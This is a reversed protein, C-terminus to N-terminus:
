LILLRNIEWGKEEYIRMRELSYSYFHKHVRKSSILMDISDILIMTEKEKTKRRGRGIKQLTDIESKRASALVVGNVNPIDTGIGFVQTAIVLNIKGNNLDNKIKENLGKQNDSHALTPSLGLKHAIKGMMEAQRIEDLLVLCSLGKDLLLKKAAKLLLTNREANLLVDHRYSQAYEKETPKQNKFKIMYVKVPIVRTSVEEDKLEKIINGFYGHMNMTKGPNSKEKQPTATLGFRYHIQKGFHNLWNTISDNIRQVEDLIVLKFDNKNIRNLSQFLSITIHGISFQGDGIYGISYNPFWETLSNLIQQFISKNIVIILTKPVGFRKIIGGIIISKGSNHVVIGNAVFNNHPDKCQIDYTKKFGTYEISKVKSFSPIGQNFQTYDAHLKLHDVVKLKILNKINNNKCNKDIHHIHYEKPNIFKLTKSKQPNTRLINLYYNVNMKNEFAEYIIRHVEITKDKGKEKNQIVRAYPHFWLKGYYSATQKKKKEKGISKAHLQDCMVYDNEDLNILEKWGNKTMIRHEPTAIINKGNELTLKFVKKIGSYIVNEIKNLRIINEINRYSRVYSKKSLDWNFKKDGMQNFHKYVTEIKIKKGLSCRNINVVTGKAICGTSAVIIGRKYVRLNNLISKQYPEYTIGPLDYNINVSLPAPSMMKCFSTFGKNRAKDKVVSWLGLPFARRRKDFLSYMTWEAHEMGPLKIKKQYSLAYYAVAQAMDGKGKIWNADVQEFILLAM